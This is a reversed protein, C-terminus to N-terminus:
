RKRSPGRVGSKKPLLTTTVTSDSPQPSAPKTKKPWSAVEKQHYLHRGLADLRADWFREYRALWTAAARIREPALVCRVIRGEKECAILSAEELVRVHKMFGVLSMGHPTALDSVNRAGDVLAELTARRASHSLAGFVLDLEADQFKVM